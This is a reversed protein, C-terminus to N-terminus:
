AAIPEPMADQMPEALDFGIWIDGREDESVVAELVPGAPGNRFMIREQRLRPDGADHALVDIGLDALVGSILLGSRHVDCDSTVAEFRAAAPNALVALVTDTILDKM